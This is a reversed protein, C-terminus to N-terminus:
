KFINGANKPGTMREKRQRVEQFLNPWNLCFIISTFGIAMLSNSMIIGSQLGAVGLDFRFATCYSFPLGISCALLSIPTAIAQKGTGKVMGYAVLMLSTVAVTSFYLPMIEQVSKLVAKQQTFIVYIYDQLLVAILIM